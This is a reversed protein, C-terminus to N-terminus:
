FIFIVVCLFSPRPTRTKSGSHNATSSHLCFASLQFQEPSGLCQFFYVCLLPFSSVWELVSANRTEQWTACFLDSYSPDSLVHTEIAGAFQQLKVMANLRLIETVLYGHYCYCTWPPPLILSMSSADIILQVYGTYDTSNSWPIDTMLWKTPLPPAYFRDTIYDTSAPCLIQWDDTM